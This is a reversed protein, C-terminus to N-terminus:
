PERPNRPKDSAKPIAKIGPDVSHVEIKHTMQGGWPTPLVGVVDKRGFAKKFATAIMDEFAPELQVLKGALLGLGAAGAAPIGFSAFAGLKTAAGPIKSAMGGGMALDGMQKLAEDISESGGTIGGASGTRIEEANTVFVPTVGAVKQMLKGRMIGGGIGFLKNGLAGSLATIAAASAVMGKNDMVGKLSDVTAGPIDSLAGGLDGNAAKSMVGQFPSFIQDFGKDMQNRMRKLSDELNDTSEQYSSDLTKQDSAVKKVGDQFKQVGKLIAMLGTAEQQSIGGSTLLNIRDSDNMGKTKQFFRQALEPTLQKFDFHGGKMGLLGSLAASGGFGSQSLHLLAQVAAMGTERDAGVRTAGAVIAAYERDSMGARHKAAASGGSMAAMAENIDKFQGGRTAAVLSQLLSNVNEPTIKRNEAQLRDAVFRAVQAADGNGMAATKAIPNMVSMAQDMNGTAGYLESVAAPLTELSAGTQGLQYLESRLAKIKATPLDARSALRALEKGFDMGTSVAEKMQTHLLSVGAAATGLAAGRGLNTVFSASLDKLSSMASGAQVKLFSAYDRFASGSTQLTRNIQQFASTSQERIKRVQELYQRGDLRVRQSVESGLSPM